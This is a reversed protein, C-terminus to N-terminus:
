GFSRLNFSLLIWHPQPSPPNSISKAPRDYICVCDYIEGRFLKEALYRTKIMALKLVPCRFKAHLNTLVARGMGELIVLDTGVTSDALQGPIRRLDLCPSGQGNSIIYLRAERCLTVPREKLNRFSTFIMLEDMMSAWCSQNALWSDKEDIRFYSFQIILFFSKIVTLFIWQLVRPGSTKTHSLKFVLSLVGLYGSYRLIRLREFAIEIVM